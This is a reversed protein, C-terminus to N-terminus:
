EINCILFAVNATNGCIEAYRSTRIPVSVPVSLIPPVEGKGNCGGKRGDARQGAVVVLAEPDHVLGMAVFM